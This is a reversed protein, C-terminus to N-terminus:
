AADVREAAAAQAAMWDMVGNAWRAADALVASQCGPRAAALQFFALREVPAGLITLAPEPRGDAQVPHREPTVDLAGPVFAAGAPDPNAWLRVLGGAMMNRYLPCLDRAVDFGHARGEVLVPVDWGGTGSAPEIRFGDPGPMVRADPGASLDVLGAEVLALLRANPEPGTGNSMRNYTRLHTAIFRRHSDATLGGFDLVQAHVPRLDRWVGDSAAKGPHDLNGLRAAALDRRMVALGAAHWDTIGTQAQLPQSLCHWDFRWGSPDPGVAGDLAARRGALHTDAAASAADFAAQLPQILGLPDDHVPHDPGRLFDEVLRDLAPKVRDTWAAGMLTRYHVFALELILLPLVHRDYDLQRQVRGSVTAPVGAVQRLREVAAPTLFVARHELAAHGRGTGDAAKQNHPRCFAFYGSPGVALIRGPERGSPRYRLGCVGADDCPEFRGGRGETLYLILDLATLGLGRVAISSGAPVTRPDLTACFPYPNHVYACGPLGAAHRSLTDAASGPEIANSGHGTVLLVLDAGDPANDRDWRVLFGGGGDRSVDTVEAARLVVRVGPLAALRAAYRGFADELAEGHLVRRPIDQPGCPDDGPLAPAPRGALWQYLTPRDKPPLLTRAQTVTEDAAFSVQSSVRNLYSTPAQAQGHTGPGFRGGREYVTVTVCVAAPRGPLEACLRELAYTAFPGGGVIALRVPRPSPGATM